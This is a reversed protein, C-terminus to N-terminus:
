KCTVSLFPFYSYLEVNFCVEIIRYGRLFGLFTKHSVVPLMESRREVGLFLDLLIITALHALININKHLM